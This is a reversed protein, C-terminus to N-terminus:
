SGSSEQELVGEGASPVLGAGDSGAGSEQSQEFGPLGEQRAEEKAGEWAGEAVAAGKQMQERALKAANEKVEDSREGMVRNETETNPLASGILAGFIVGLSALVLPHERLFGALAGGSDGLNSGMSAMRSRVGAATNRLTGRARRAQEAAAQSVAAAGDGVSQAAGHLRSAATSAAASTVDRADHALARAQDGISDATKNVDDAWAGATRQASETWEGAGRSADETWQSATNGAQESASRAQERVEESVRALRDRSRWGESANRASSTTDTRFSSLAMWALGVGIVAIPMPNNVVQDRLNRTFEAPGSEKAYDVVQDLLHGPTIRARLEDLDASIHARTHEAERELQASSTM